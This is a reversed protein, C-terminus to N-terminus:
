SSGLIQLVLIGLKPDGLLALTLTPESHPVPCMEARSVEGQGVRAEDLGEGPGVEGM